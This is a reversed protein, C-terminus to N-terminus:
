QMLTEWNGDNSCDDPWHYVHLAKKLKTYCQDSSQRLRFQYGSIYYINQQIRSLEYIRTNYQLKLIEFVVSHGRSSFCLIIKYKRVTYRCYVSIINPM